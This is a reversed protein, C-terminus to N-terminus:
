SRHPKLSAVRAQVGDLLVELASIEDGSTAPAAPPPESVDHGAIESDLTVQVAGGSIRLAYRDPSASAGESEWHLDQVAARTSHGDLKLYVAGTSIDAVVAVGKPRHLMVGVVGGSIILPVVGRPRPLYCEVRAAGSDLKIERLELGGADVVTNWTPGQIRVRWPHRPNLEVDGFGVGRLRRVIVTEGREIAPAAAGRDRPLRFLTEMESGARLVVGRSGTDIAIAAESGAAVPPADQRAARGALAYAMVMLAVDAAEAGPLGAGTLARKL